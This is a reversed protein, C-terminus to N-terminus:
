SNYLAMNETVKLEDAIRNEILRLLKQEATERANENFTTTVIYTTKGIQIETTRSRIPKKEIM